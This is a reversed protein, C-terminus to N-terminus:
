SRSKFRMAVWGDRRQVEDPQVAIAELFGQEQEELIGSVLLSGATHSLLEPWLDILTHWLLNAAVVDFRGRVCDASGQIVHFQAKNLARNASTARVAERDIDVATVACGELSAALSLVGSGCGVDLMTKPQLAEIWELMMATTAHDGNGFSLGPDLRILRRGEVSGEFWPPVIASTGLVIPKEPGQYRPWQAAERVVRAAPLKALTKQVQRPELYLAVWGTEGPEPCSEFTDIGAEIVATEFAEQEHGPFTLVLRTV